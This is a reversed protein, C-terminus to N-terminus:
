LDLDLIADQIKTNMLADEDSDLYADCIVIHDMKAFILDIIRITRVIM